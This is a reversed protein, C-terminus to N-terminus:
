RSIIRQMDNTEQVQQTGVMLTSLRAIKGRTPQTPTTQFELYTPYSLRCYIRVQDQEVLELLQVRGELEYFLNTKLPPLHWPWGACLVPSPGLSAVLCCFYRPDRWALRCRSWSCFKKLNNTHSLVVEYIFPKDGLIMDPSERRLSFACVCEFLCVIGLIFNL